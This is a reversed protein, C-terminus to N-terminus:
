SRYFDFLDRFIGFAIFHSIFFSFSVYDQEKQGGM